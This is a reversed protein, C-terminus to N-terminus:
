WSHLSPGGHHGGAIGDLQEQSLEPKPPLVIHAEGATEEHVHLRYDAPLRMGTEQELAARPDALVKARFEDDEAAKMVIHAKVEAESQM